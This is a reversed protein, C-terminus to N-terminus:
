AEYHTPSANLGIYDAILFISIFRIKNWYIAFDLGLNWLASLARISLIFLSYFPLIYIFYNQFPKLHLYRYEM